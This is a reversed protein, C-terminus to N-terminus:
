YRSGRISALLAHTSLAPGRHSSDAPREAAAMSMVEAKMDM